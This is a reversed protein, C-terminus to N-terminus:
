YDYGGAGKGVTNWSIWVRPARGVVTHARPRAAASQHGRGIPIKTQSQAASGRRGTCAGELPRRGRRDAHKRAMGRSARRQAADGTAQRRAARGVARPLPSRPPTTHSMEAGRKPEDGSTMRAAGPEEGAQPGENSAPKHAAGPAGERAQPALRVLLLRARV